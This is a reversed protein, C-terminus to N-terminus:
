SLGWGREIRDIEASLLAFDEHASIGTADLNIVITNSTSEVRQLVEERLRPRLEAFDPDHVLEVCSAAVTGPKPLHRFVLARWTTLLARRRETRDQVRKIFAGILLAVVSSPLAIGLIVSWNM